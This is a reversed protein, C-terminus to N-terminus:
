FFARIFYYYTNTKREGTVLSYNYTDAIFRKSVSQLTMRQQMM